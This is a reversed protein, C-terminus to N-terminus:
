RKAPKDKLIGRVMRGFARARERREALSASNFAEERVLKRWRDLRAEDIRGDALAARVACGPESEHRCDSFRCDAALATLDGFLEAIGEAADTLQLERMGPNDLVAYGEAMLHLQRSTTTHRGKDDDARIGGTAAREFGSLANVLTSKGVGSSGLFAVTRGTRCWPAMLTRAADGLANLAVVPVAASVTAAQRAYEAPDSALDAKTLVIVPEVEAEFALAVYRELRALNFDQNCSTVVFVSDVNAAILQVERGTGPARRKFLSKRDLLRSAGPRDAAHLLWDGITADARPPLAAAIGDGEVRLGSREVGVVRVPPTAAMEDVSVQQALFPQWGLRELRTPVHTVTTTRPGGTVPPLFRSYDRAMETIECIGAVPM